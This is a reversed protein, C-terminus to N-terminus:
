IPATPNLVFLQRNLVSKDLSDTGRWGAFVQRQRDVWHLFGVGRGVLKGDDGYTEIILGRQTLLQRRSVGLKGLRWIGSSPLGGCLVSAIGIKGPVFARGNSYTPVAPVLELAHAKALESSPLSPMVPPYTTTTTETSAPM